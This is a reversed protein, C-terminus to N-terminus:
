CLEVLKQKLEQLDHYELALDLVLDVANEWGGRRFKTSMRSRGDCSYRALIQAVRLLRTERLIQYCLDVYEDEYDPIAVNRHALDYLRKDLLNM